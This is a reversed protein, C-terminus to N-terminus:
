GHRNITARRRAAWGVLAYGSLMLGLAEPEPVSTIPGAACTPDTCALAVDGPLVAWANIWIGSTSTAGGQLGGFMTFDSMYAITPDLTTWYFLRDNPNNSNNYTFQINYFPSYDGHPSIAQGPTGGFESYYLHGMQSGTCGIGGSIGFSYQESCSVDTQPAIPLMWNNYGLYNAANMAGIWSQATYGQMGGNSSIGSVGFTNTAALNANALWTINLDTDYVALGDLRSELAAQATGSLGMVLVLATLYIKQTNM